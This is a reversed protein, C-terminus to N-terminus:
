TASDSPAPTTGSAGENLKRRRDVLLVAAVVLIVVIVIGGAIYRLTHHAKAAAKPKAVAVTYRAGNAHALVVLQPQESVSYVVTFHRKDNMSVHIHGPAPAPHFTLAHVEHHHLQAKLAPLGEPQFHIATAASASAAFALTLLASLLAIRPVRMPRNNM